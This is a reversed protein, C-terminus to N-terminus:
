PIDTWEERALMLNVIMFSMCIKSIVNPELNHVCNISKLGNVLLILHTFM